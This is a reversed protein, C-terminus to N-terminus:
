LIGNTERVCRVGSKGVAVEMNLVDAGEFGVLWAGDSTENSSWSSSCGFLNPILYCGQSPGEWLPCEQPACKSHEYCEPELCENTVGCEGGTETTPCGVILSRLDNVTPLHWDEYGEHVLEDCYVKAEQWSMENDPSPPNQWM